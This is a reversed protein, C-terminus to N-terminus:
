RANGYKESHADLHYQVAAERTDFYAVRDPTLEADDWAAWRGNPLQTVFWDVDGESIVSESARGLTEYDASGLAQAFQNRAMCPM